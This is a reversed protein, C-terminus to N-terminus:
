VMIRVDGGKKAKAILNNPRIQNCIAFFHMKWDFCKERISQKKGTEAM